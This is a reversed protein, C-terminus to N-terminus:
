AKGGFFTQAWKLRRLPTKVKAYPNEMYGGKLHVAHSYLNMGHGTYLGDCIIVAEIQRLPGEIGKLVDLLRFSAYMGGFVYSGSYPDLYWWKNGLVAMANFVTRIMFLFQNARHM